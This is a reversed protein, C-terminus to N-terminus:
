KQKIGQLFNGIESVIRPRAYVTIESVVVTKDGPNGKTLLRVSGDRNEWYCFELDTDIELPEKLIGYKQVIDSWTQGSIAVDTFCRATEGTTEQYKRIRDQDRKSIISM